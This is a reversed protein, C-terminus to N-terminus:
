VPERLTERLAEALSDHTFPKQLFGGVPAEFRSTAFEKSYGSMLVVLQDPQIRRIRRLAEEGSIGPMTLDLLVVDIDHHHKRFMELGESGEQATLVAFGIRDLMEGILERVDPDDDVVLVTGQSRWQGDPRRTPAVPEAAQDTPSFLIRFSTGRDPESDVRIAGRHGRVIGLVVALGLGRGTFKTTFFPDFIQRRTADDMGCGSDSVELYVYPGDPLDDHVYVGSRGGLDGRMVGTRVEITGSEEGLAESANAVLNMTVQAIQSSDGKVAPLDDSLDFRLVGKKSVSIQLLDTMEEILRSLDLPRPDLAVSGSYAMLQRTLESLRKGAGRARELRDVTPSDPPLDCLAIGVNGLIPMLLNNFDHAIGGAMVGLSELKQVHELQAQHYRREEDAKQRAILHRWILGVVGVWALLLAGASILTVVGAGLVRRESQEVNRRIRDDIAATLVRIGDTYARKNKAYADDVLLAQAEALRGQRTLALARNEIAVLNSNAAATREAAAAYAGASLLIVQEIAAELKPEDRRYREEWRTDGTVAAMRASMTLVEDLHIVTGILRELRLEQGSVEESARYVIWTNWSPFILFAFTVIVALAFLRIRRAAAARLLWRLRMRTIFRRRM